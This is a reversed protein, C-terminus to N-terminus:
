RKRSGKKKIPVHVLAPGEHEDGAPQDAPPELPGPELDDDGATPTPADAAAETAAPPGAPRAARRRRTSTVVIPAAVPEPPVQDGSGDGDPSGEPEGAPAVGAWTVEIPKDAKEEPDPATGM